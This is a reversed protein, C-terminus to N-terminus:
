AATSRVKKLKAIDRTNQGVQSVIVRQSQHLESVRDEIADVQMGLGEVREFIQPFARALQSPYFRFTRNSGDRDSRVILMGKMERDYTKLLQRAQWKSCSMFEAFDAVTWIRKKRLHPPIM